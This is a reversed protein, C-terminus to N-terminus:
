EFLSLEALSSVGVVGTGQWKPVLRVYRVPRPASLPLDLFYHYHRPIPPDWPSDADTINRFTRSNGTVGSQETLTRRALEVWQEGDESGEILLEHGPTGLDRIVVRSLRAPAALRVGILLPPAGPTDSPWLESPKAGILRGDTFPCPAALVPHCAAGRSLPRLTGVPLALRESRWELRFRLWSEPSTLPMRNWAGASVVRVQAEASDFDELLWPPLARPSTVADELWVLGEQGHLQLTPVPLIPDVQGDTVDPEAVVGVSAEPPPPTPAFTLARGTPEESSALHADWTRMEPLESDGGGTSLTFSIFAARGNELPTAVRYRERFTPRLRSDEAEMRPLIDGALVELAFAGNDRTTTTGYPTFDLADFLARPPTYPRGGELTLETQRFPAGDGRLAMGYFFVPADPFPECGATFLSSLLLGHLLSPRM